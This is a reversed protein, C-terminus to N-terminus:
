RPGFASKPAWSKRDDPVPTTEIGAASWFQQHSVIPIQYDRAKKAKGSLSETDAAVLVSLKKSVGPKVILEAHAALETALVRTILEGDFMLHADGTFCVSMGAELTLYHAPAADTPASDGRRHETHEYFLSPWDTLPAPPQDCGLDALTGGGGHEARVLERLLDATARADGLATHAENLDVGYARCSEALSRGVLGYTDVTALPPIPLNLRRFESQLFRTDFSANHAVLVRGALRHVLDDAVESFPPADKAIAGTIGHLYTPGLDRDPNVVCAWEDIVELAGNLHVIAVEVIRDNREAVLGTTEVDFVAFESDSIALSQGHNNRWAQLDFLTM